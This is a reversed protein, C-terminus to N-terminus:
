ATSPSRPWPWPMLVGGAPGGAADAEDAEDGEDAGYRAPGGAADAEDAEDAGYRRCNGCRFVRGGGIGVDAPWILVTNHHPLVCLLGNGNPKNGGLGGCVDSSSSSSSSSPSSSGVGGHFCGLGHAMLAAAHVALLSGAANAGVAHAANSAARWCCPLLMSQSGAALLTQTAILEPAKTNSLKSAKLAWVNMDTCTRDGTDRAPWPL